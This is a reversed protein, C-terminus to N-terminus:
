KKSKIHQEEIKVLEERLKEIEKTEKMDSSLGSLTYAHIEDLIVNSGYGMKKLQKRLGKLKYKNVAREVAKRYEPVLYFWAHRMEHEVTSLNCEKPTGILYYPEEDENFVYIGFKVLAEMLEMERPRLDSLHRDITVFFNHVVNSPVNFGGWDDTYTFVGNGQTQAYWDMYEEFTFEQGRFKKNPSEYFEQLRVFTMCLEYQTNHTVHFIRWPSVQKIKLKSM